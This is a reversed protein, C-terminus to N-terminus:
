RKRSKQETVQKKNSFKQVGECDEGAETHQFQKAQARNNNPVGAHAKQKQKKKEEWGRNWSSSPRNLM